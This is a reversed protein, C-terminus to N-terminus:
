LARRAAVFAANGWAKGGLPHWGRQQFLRAGAPSEALGMHPQPGALRSDVAAKLHPSGLPRHEPWVAIGAWYVAAGRGPARFHDLTLAHEGDTLLADVGDWTLDYLDAYGVVQGATELLLLGGPYRAVLADDLACSWTNDGFFHRALPYAAQVDALSSAARVGYPSPSVVPSPAIPLLM